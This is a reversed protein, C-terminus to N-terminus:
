GDLTAIQQNFISYPQIHKFIALTMSYSIYVTYIYICMYMYVCIHM